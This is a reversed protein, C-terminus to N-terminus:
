WNAEGSILRSCDLLTSNGVTKRVCSGDEDKECFKGFSASIKRERKM